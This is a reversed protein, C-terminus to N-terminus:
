LHASLSILKNFGDFRESCPSSKPSKLEVPCCVLIHQGGRLCNNCGSGEIKSSEPELFYSTAEHEVTSAAM